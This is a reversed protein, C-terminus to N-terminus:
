ILVLGRLVDIIKNQNIELPPTLPMRMKINMLGMLSAAFKVTGPNTEIFLIKFLNYLQLQMNRAKTM